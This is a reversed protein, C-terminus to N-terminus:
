QRKPKAGLLLFSTVIQIETGYYGSALRIVGVAVTEPVPVSGLRAGEQRPHAPCGPKILVPAKGLWCLLTTLTSALSASASSVLAKRCSIQEAERGPDLSPQTGAHLGQLHRSKPQFFLSIMAWAGEHEHLLTAWRVVTKEGPWYDFAVQVHAFLCRCMALNEYEGRLLSAAM